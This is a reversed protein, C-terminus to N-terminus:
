ATQIQDQGTDTHGAVGIRAHMCGARQCAADRDRSLPAPEPVKLLSTRASRMTDAPLLQARARRHRTRVAVRAHHRWVVASEYESCGDPSKLSRHLLAVGVRM